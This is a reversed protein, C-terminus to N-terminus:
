GFRSSLETVRVRVQEIRQRLADRDDGAPLDGVLEHAQDIHAAADGILTVVQADTPPCGLESGEPLAEFASVVLKESDEECGLAEQLQKEAEDAASAASRLLEEAEARKDAAELCRSAAELQAEALDLLATARLLIQGAEDAKLHACRHVTKRATKAVSEGGIGTSFIPINCPEDIDPDCVLRGWTHGEVALLRWGASRALDVTDRWWQKPHRPWQEEPQYWRSM